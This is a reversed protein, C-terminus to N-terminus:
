AAKGIATGENHRLLEAVERASVPKSFLYGQMETCGDIKLQELQEITEIGEATTSMGLSCGLGIVARVIAESHKSTIRDSIFTRDIKITDFQFSSLYSLSSYGTGFDDMAIRVGLNRLRHLTEITSDTSELMVGETIELRLRHAPLSSKQLATAVDDLLHRGEFQTPSVNVAVWLDGHWNLAETCAANLIWAGLKGMIGIEEAIPIFEAPSVFGRTPHIWRLLAEFGTIRQTRANVIPQYHLEFQETAVANRLDAEIARRARMKQDLEPEFIRFRGKGDTKAKYLALDAHAILTKADGANEPAIAIGVSAGITVGHGEIEFPGSLADVIQDALLMAGYPQEQGTQIVVFEDGGVRALTDAEGVSGQIISAVQQLLKDGIPHGLTDNVSKFHDLDISLLAFAGGDAIGNFARELRDQFTTLNYVGTLHDHRALFRLKEESEKRERLDRIALVRKKIDSKLFERAAIEVPIEEGTRSRITTEITDATAHKLRAWVEKDRIIESLFEPGHGREGILDLFSKNSALIEDGHVLILGDIAATSMENWQAMQTEKRGYVLTWGFLGFALMGAGFMWGLVRTEKLKQVATSSQFGSQTVGLWLNWGGTPASLEIPLITSNLLSPDSLGARAYELSKESLDSDSRSVAYGTATNILILNMDPLMRRFVNERIIASITGKLNGDEGYFPVSLIIGTRDEDNGTSKYEEHDCTIVSTGSIFPVKLGEVNDAKPYTRKLLDLQRRLEAYEFEETPQEAHGDETRSTSAVAEDLMLIPGKPKGTAPDTEGPDLDLPIIYIESVSINAVLNNYLQDLVLKTDADLTEGGRELRKVSPLLSITRLGQYAQELKLRLTTEVRKAQEIAQTKHTELARNTDRTFKVEFYALTSLSAAAAIVYGALKQNLM